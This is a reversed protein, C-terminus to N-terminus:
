RGGQGAPMATRAPESPITAIPRKRADTISSRIAASLDADQQRAKEWDVHGHNGEWNLRLEPHDIAARYAFSLGVAALANKMGVETLDDMNMVVGQPLAAVSPFAWRSPPIPEGRRIDTFHLQVSDKVGVSDLRVYPCKRALDIRVTITNSQSKTRGTLTYTGGRERRATPATLGAVFSRLDIEAADRANAHNDIGWDVKMQNGRVAAVFNLAVRDTGSVFVRGAPADYIVLRGDVAVAVPTGDHADSIDLAYHGTHECALDFAWKLYGAELQGAFHFSQLSRQDLSLRPALDLLQQPSLEGPLAIAPLFLPLCSFLARVCRM